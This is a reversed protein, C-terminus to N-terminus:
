GVTKVFRKQTLTFLAGEVALVAVTLMEDAALCQLSFKTTFFVLQCLLNSLSVVRKTFNAILSIVCLATQVGSFTHDGAYLVADPVTHARTAISRKSIEGSVHRM